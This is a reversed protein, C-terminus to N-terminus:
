VRRAVITRAPLTPRLDDTRGTFFRSDLDAETLHQEIVFARGLDGREEFLRLWAVKGTKDLRLQCCQARFSWMAGAPYMLDFEVAVADLNVQHVLGDLNEGAAAVIPGLTEPLDGIVGPM